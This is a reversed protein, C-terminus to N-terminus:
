GSGAGSGFEGKRIDAHSIGALERPQLESGNDVFASRYSYVLRKLFDCLTM